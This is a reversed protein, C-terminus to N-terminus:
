SIFISLAFMDMEGISFGNFDPKLRKNAGQVKGM